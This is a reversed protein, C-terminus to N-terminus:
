QMYIIPINSLHNKLSPGSNIKYGKKLMCERISICEM